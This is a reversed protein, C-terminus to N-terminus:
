WYGNYVPPTSGTQEYVTWYQTGEIGIDGVIRQLGGASVTWGAGQAMLGYWNDQGWEYFAYEIYSFSTGPIQLADGRPAGAIVYTLHRNTGPSIPGFGGNAAINFHFADILVSSPVWVVTGGPNSGDYADKYWNGNYLQSYWYASHQVNGYIPASPHGTSVRVEASWPSVLGSTSVSRVRFRYLGDTVAGWGPSFNDPSNESNLLNGSSDM